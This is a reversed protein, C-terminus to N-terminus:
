RSRRGRRARGSAARGSTPHSSSARSVKNRQWVDEMEDLTAGHVSRGRREFDEEVADFRRTFKANAERLASEPELGIKRALNAIAFLLDGLDEAARAPSEGLAARLERVEEDIKDVVDSPRQWDFGVAAVRRGIEYARLLSPLSAPVGSLIRRKQGANGQERAKIQEWQEKVAQSTRINTGRGRGAPLPRGDATFVHPHRRILKTTIADISDALDFRGDEAAIQAHFVCQFLVDGLEGALASFDRRDIAEVAEYSEEILHPRLSAHTQERDWPCGRKSRLTDMTRVLTTIGAAARRARAEVSLRNARMNNM